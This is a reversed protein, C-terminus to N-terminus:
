DEKYLHKCNQHFRCDDGPQCPLRLAKAAPADGQTMYGQARVIIVYSTIAGMPLTPKVASSQSVSGTQGDAM